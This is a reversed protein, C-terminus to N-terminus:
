SLFFPLPVSVWFCIHLTLFFFIPGLYKQPPLPPSLCHLVLHEMGAAGMGGGDLAEESTEEAANQEELAGEGGM